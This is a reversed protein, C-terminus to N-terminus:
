TARSRSCRSRRRRRTPACSCSRTPARSTRASRRGARHDYGVVLATAASARCRSTSSRQAAEVDVSHARSRTWRSTRGCTCGAASASRSCSCPSSRVSRPDRRVIAFGSRGRRRRAAPLAHDASVPRRRSSPTATATRAGAGRGDGRKLTTRMRFRPLRGSAGARASLIASRGASRRGLARRDARPEAAALARGRGGAIGKRRPTTRSRTAASGASRSTARRRIARLLHGSRGGGPTMAFSETLEIGATARASCTSSSAGERHPRPLGPLRVRAPHRPLARRDPRREALQEDPAYWERRAREHLWEAFAEALRDALAKVMIARYDDHEAEFRAALEDAGHIASRSRASTTAAPRSTTPSAATRGRTATTPRSACSRLLAHRGLM